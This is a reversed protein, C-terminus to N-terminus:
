SRKRRWALGCAALSVLMFASPEPVATIVGFAPLALNEFDSASMGHNFILWFADSSVDMGTGPVSALDAQLQFMIGYAGFPASSDNLLDFVIHDHINGAADGLDIFQPNDGTVGTGSLLLNATSGTNDSIAISNLAPLELMNTIPNYFNVFGNLGVSGAVTSSNLARIWIRDNPNVLLSETANTNFGPEDASFDGPSFPDLVEMAAEFYMIGNTTLGVPEIIIKSPTVLNDLGLELDGAHQARGISPLVLLLLAASLRLVTRM